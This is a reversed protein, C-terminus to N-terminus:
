SPTDATTEYQFTFRNPKCKLILSSYYYELPSELITKQKFGVELNAQFYDHIDYCIRLTPQPTLNWYKYLHIM